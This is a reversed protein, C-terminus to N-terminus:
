PCPRRRSGAHYWRVRCCCATPSHNLASGSTFGRPSVALSRFAVQCCLAVKAQPGAAHVCARCRLATCLCCSRPPMGRREGCERLAEWRVLRHAGLDVQQGAWCCKGADGPDPVGGIVLVRGDPLTLPTPYWRASSM